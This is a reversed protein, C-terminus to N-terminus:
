GVKAKRVKARANGGDAPGGFHGRFFRGLAEPAHDDKKLPEEKNSTLSEEKTDPYRYDNMERIMDVCSRDIMLKPKRYEELGHQPTIKLWKRIQELRWKLEGGTNSNFKIKLRKELVATDGPSAPDPYATVIRGTIPFGALDDAIDEIDRHKRRYEALVSVNDFPDVQIVLWVFPNTWGYDVAAYVPYRPDYELDAVHIEEDFDKFVRGVFETFDAGIEQNFKEVSMEAAMDLIEEDLGAEVVDIPHIARDEEDQPDMMRHLLKISEPTAGRPFVYPNVWSPMRWSSWQPSNSSQGRQWMRYFWNKGEPTSTSLSWGLFDALTPRLYKVWVTEKLKAAEALIVGSLGEGVLSSPYKASKAHLQFRGSWLSIDMQGSEPNNYTGPKDFPVELRKLADYCVRFEKEADSYEPGVIWFERRHGLEELMEKVTYTYLAEVPLESGGLKSKGTRRGACVVRHRADSAHIEEQLPHPYYGYSPFLLEKAIGQTETATM